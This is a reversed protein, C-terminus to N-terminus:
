GKCGSVVDKDNDLEKSDKTIEWVDEDKGAGAGCGPYIANATHQLGGEAKDKGTDGTVSTYTYRSKACDTLRFGLTNGGEAVVDDCQASKGGYKVMAGHYTGTNNLSAENLWWSEQLRTITGLNNKAEAQRSRAVFAKYRPMALTVLVGIIAAAALLEILTFGCRRNQKSNCKGLPQYLKRTACVLRTFRM